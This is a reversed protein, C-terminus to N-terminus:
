DEKSCNPCFMGRRTKKWGEEKLLEDARAMSRGAPILEHGQCNKCFQKWYCNEFGPDAVTLSSWRTM